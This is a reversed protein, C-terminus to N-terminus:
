AIHATCHTHVTCPSSLEVSLIIVINTDFQINCNHVGPTVDEIADSRFRDLDLLAFVYLIDWPGRVYVGM